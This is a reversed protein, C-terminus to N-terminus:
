RVGESTDTPEVAMPGLPGLKLALVFAEIRMWRSEDDQAAGIWRAFRDRDSDPLRDFTELVDYSAFM